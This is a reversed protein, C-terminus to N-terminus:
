LPLTQFKWKRYMVLRAVDEPEYHQAAALATLNTRAHLSLSAHSCSLFIRVVGGGAAVYTVCCSICPERGARNGTRKHCHMEGRNQDLGRKAKTKSGGLPTQGVDASGSQFSTSIRRYVRDYPSWYALSSKLLHADTTSSGFIVSGQALMGIYVLTYYSLKVYLRGQLKIM